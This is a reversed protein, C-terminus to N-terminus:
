YLETMLKLPLRDCVATTTKDQGTDNLESPDQAPGYSYTANM